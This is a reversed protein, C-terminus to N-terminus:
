RYKCLFSGGPALTLYRDPERDMRLNACNSANVLAAFVERSTKEQYKNYNNFDLGPKHNKETKEATEQSACKTENALERHSGNIISSFVVKMMGSEM